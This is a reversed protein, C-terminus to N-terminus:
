FFCDGNARKGKTTGNIYRGKTKGFSTKGDIWFGGKYLIYNSRHGPRKTYVTGKYYCVLENYGYDRDAFLGNGANKITSTKVSPENPKLSIYCKSCLRDKGYKPPPEATRYAEYNPNM